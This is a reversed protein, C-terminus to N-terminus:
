RVIRWVMKLLRKNQKLRTTSKQVNRKDFLEGSWGMTIMKELLIRRSDKKREPEARSDHYQMTVKMKMENESESDLEDEEKMM